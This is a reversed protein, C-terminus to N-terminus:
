SRQVIEMAIMLGAVTAIVVIVSILIVRKVWTPPQDM